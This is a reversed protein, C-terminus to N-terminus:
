RIKAVFMSLLNALVYRDLTIYGVSERKDRHATHLFGCFKGHISVLSEFGNGSMFGILRVLFQNCSYCLERFNSIRLNRCETTVVMVFLFCIFLM